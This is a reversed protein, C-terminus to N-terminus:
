HIVIAHVTSLTGKEIKSNIRSTVRAHILKGDTVTVEDGM